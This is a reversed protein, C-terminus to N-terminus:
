LNKQFTSIEPFAELDKGEIQSAALNRSDNGTMM